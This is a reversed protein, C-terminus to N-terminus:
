LILNLWRQCEKAPSMAKGDKVVSPDLKKVDEGEDARKLLRASACTIKTKTIGNLGDVSRNQDWTVM